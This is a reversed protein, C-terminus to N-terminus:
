NYGWLLKTIPLGIRFEMPVTEMPVAAGFQHCKHGRAVSAVVPTKEPYPLTQERIGIRHGHTEKTRCGCKLQRLALFVQTLSAFPTLTRHCLSSGGYRKLAWDAGGEEQGSFDCSQGITNSVGLLPVADEECGQPGTSPSKGEQTGYVHRVAHKCYSTGHYALIATHSWSRARIWKALWNMISWSNSSSRGPRAGANKYIWDFTFLSVYLSLSSRMRSMYIITRGPTRLYHASSPLYFLGSDCKLSTPRQSKEGM